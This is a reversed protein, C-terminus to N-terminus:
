LNGFDDYNKDLAARNYTCSSSYLYIENSRLYVSEKCFNESIAVLYSGIVQNIVVWSSQNTSKIYSTSITRDFSLLDSVEVKNINSYTKM